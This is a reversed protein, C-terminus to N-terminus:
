RKEAARGTHSGIARPMADLAELGGWKTEM